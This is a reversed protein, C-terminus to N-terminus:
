NMREQVHNTAQVADVFNLSLTFCKEDADWNTEFMREKRDIKENPIKFATTEYPEAVIILYQYRRDPSLEVSQEYASM